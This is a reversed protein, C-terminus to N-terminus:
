VAVEDGGAVGPLEGVGGVWGKGGEEGIWRNELVDEGDGVGGHADETAGEGDVFASAAGDSIEAGESSVDATPPHVLTLPDLPQSDPLSFRHKPV